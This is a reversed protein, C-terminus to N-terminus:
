VDRAVVSEIQTFIITITEVVAMRSIGYLRSLLCGYFIPMGHNYVGTDVVYYLKEHIPMWAVWHIYAGKLQKLKYLKM